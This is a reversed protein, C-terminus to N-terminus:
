HTKGHQCGAAATINQTPLLRIEGDFEFSMLALPTGRMAQLLEGVAVESDSEIQAQKTKM